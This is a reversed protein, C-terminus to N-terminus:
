SDWDPCVDGQWGKPHVACILQTGRHVEGHYFRCGVCTSRRPPTLTQIVDDWDISTFHPTTELQGDADLYIFDARLRDRIGQWTLGRIMKLRILAAVADETSLGFLNRALDISEIVFRDSDM